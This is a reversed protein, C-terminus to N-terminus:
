HLRLFFPSQACRYEREEKTWKNESLDVWYDMAMDVFEKNWDVCIIPIDGGGYDHINRFISICHM